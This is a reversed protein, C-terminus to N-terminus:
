AVSEENESEEEWVHFPDDLTHWYDEGAQLEKETLLCEDLARIINQQNLNQGIFVLETTKGAGLFGSLVTVPIRPPSNVSKSYASNPLSLTM